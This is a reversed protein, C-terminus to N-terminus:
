LVEFVHWILNGGDMQATGIFVYPEHDFSHGTGCIRITRVDYNPELHNVLAWLCLTDKQMQVSLIESNRPMKVENIGTLSLEFKWVQKM